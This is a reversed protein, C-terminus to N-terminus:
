CPCLQNHVLLLGPEHCCHFAYVDAENVKGSLRVRKAM